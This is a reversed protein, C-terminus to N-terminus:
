LIGRQLYCREQVSVPYFLEVKKTSLPPPSGLALIEASHGEGVRRSCHQLWELHLWWVQGPQLRHGSGDEERGLEERHKWEQVGMYM